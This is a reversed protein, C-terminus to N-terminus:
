VRVGTFSSNGMSTKVEGSINDGDVTGSTTMEMKGFPGEMTMNASFSSGDFKGGSIEVTGFMSSTMNGSLSEGDTKLTLTSEIKGMPTHATVKYTGDIAMRNRRIFNIFSVAGYKPTLHHYHM